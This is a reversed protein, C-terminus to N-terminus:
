TPVTVWDPMWGDALEAMFGKPEPALAADIERENLEQYAVLRLAVQETSAWDGGWEVWVHALGVRSWYYTEAFGKRVHTAHFGVWPRMVNIAADLDGSVAADFADTGSIWCRDTRIDSM